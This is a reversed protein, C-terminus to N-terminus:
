NPALKDFYRRIGAYTLDFGPLQRYLDVTPGAEAQLEAEARAVFEDESLGSEVWGAWEELRARM